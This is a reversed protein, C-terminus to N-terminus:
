NNKQENRQSIVQQLTENPIKEMTMKLIYGDSFAIGNTLIEELLEMFYIQYDKMAFMLFAIELGTSIYFNKDKDIYFMKDAKVIDEQILRDIYLRQTKMFSVLDVDIGVSETFSTANFVSVSTSKGESIKGYKLAEIDPFRVGNCEVSKNLQNIKYNM